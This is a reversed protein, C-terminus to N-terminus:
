FIQYVPCLDAVYEVPFRLQNHVIASDAGSNICRLNQVIRVVIGKVHNGRLKRSAKPINHYLCFIGEFSPTVRYFQSEVPNVWRKEEVIVSLPIDNVVIGGIAPLLQIFAVTDNFYPLIIHSGVLDDGSGILDDDISANVQRFLGDPNLSGMNVLFVPLVIKHTGFPTGAVPV